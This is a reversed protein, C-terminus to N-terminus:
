PQGPRRTGGGAAAEADLDAMFQRTLAEADGAVGEARTGPEACEPLVALVRGALRTAASAWGDGAPGPAALGAAGARQWADVAAAAVIRAADLTQEGVPEGEGLLEKRWGTIMGDDCARAMATGLVRLGRGAGAELGLLAGAV